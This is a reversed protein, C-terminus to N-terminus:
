MVDRIDTLSFSNHPGKCSLSHVIYQLSRAYVISVSALSGRILIPVSFANVRRGENISSTYLRHCLQFLMEVVNSLESAYFYQQIAILFAKWNHVISFIDPIPACPMCLENICVQQCTYKQFETNQDQM